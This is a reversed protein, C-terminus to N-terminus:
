VKSCHLNIFLCTLIGLFSMWLLGRVSLMKNSPKSINVIDFGTVNSGIFYHLYYELLLLGILLTIAILIAQLSFKRGVFEMMSYIFVLIWAFLIASIFLKTIKVTSHFHPLINMGNCNQTCIESTHVSNDFDERQKRLIDRWSNLWNAHGIISLYWCYGAIAGLLSILILFDWYCCKLTVGNVKAVVEGTSVLITTYALLLAGNFLSYYNMWRHYRNEMDCLHNYIFNYREMANFAMGKKGIM